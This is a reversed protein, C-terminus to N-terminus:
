SEFLPNITVERELENTQANLRFVPANFPIRSNEELKKPKGRTVLESNIGCDYTVGSDFDKVMIRGSRTKYFYSYRYKKPEDEPFAFKLELEFYVTENTLSETSQIQKYVFIKATQTKSYGLEEPRKQGTVKGTKDEVKFFIGESDEYVVNMNVYETM